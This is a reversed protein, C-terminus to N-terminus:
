KCYSIVDTPVHYLVVQLYTVLGVKPPIAETSGPPLPPTPPTPAAGEQYRPPATPPAGGRYRPPRTLPAGELYRPPPAISEGERSHPPSPPRPRLSSAKPKPLWLPTSSLFTSTWPGM